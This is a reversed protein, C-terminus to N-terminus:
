ALALLGDAGEWGLLDVTDSEHSPWCSSDLLLRENRAAMPLTRHDM